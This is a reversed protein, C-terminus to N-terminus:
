QAHCMEEQQNTNVGKGSHEDAATGAKRGTDAVPTAPLSVYFTSGEGEASEVWIRGGHREVVRRVIALGMGEGRAATPHLRQFAQFAKDHASPAMGLGNDRVFCTVIDPSLGDGPSATELVGVEIAGARKPHLYNVANGILNAFVQEVATADGRICPLPHVTIEAGREALSMRMADVIRRVVDNLHIARMQYEVRGARSLRLLADIIASLRSVASRIFQIPEKMGPDIFTTVRERVAVPVDESGVAETIEACTMELEASFGQLNVLPSRLDHSVSYVFMENERNKETLDRVAEALERTRLAVRRELEDNLHLLREQHERQATMDRTIKSFGTVAGADDMIATILTSGWFQTGDNRVRWGEDRVCGQRAAIALEEVPKGRVLEEPPYFESFHRGIIEAPKYGTLREAGKNWTSVNGDRDLLFIAYDQISEVLLRYQIDRERLAANTAATLAMAADLSKVAWVIMAILVAITAAVLMAAGFETDYLNASQGVLRLWGFVLPAAIAAPILRRAIVMGPSDANLVFGLWSKKACLVIALGLAHLLVATNPAMPKYAGFGYFSRSGFVYGIVCLFSWCALLSGLGEAIRHMRAQHLALLGAGALLLCVGTNPAMRNDGLQSAFFLRDVRPNFQFVYGAICVVGVGLVTMSLLRTLRRGGSVSALAVTVAAILLTIATAPNMAVRGPLLSKLAPSDVIWGGLTALSGLAIFASLVITARRSACSSIVVDAM